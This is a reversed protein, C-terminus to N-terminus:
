MILNKPFYWTDEFNLDMTFPNRIPRYQGKTEEDDYWLHAGNLGYHLGYKLIISNAVDKGLDRAVINLYYRIIGTKVKQTKKENALEIAYCVYEYDIM